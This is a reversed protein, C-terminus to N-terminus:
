SLLVGDNELFNQLEKTTKGRCVVMLIEKESSTNCTSSCKKLIALDSGSGSWSKQTASAEVGCVMKRFPAGQMFGDVASEEWKMVETSDFAPSVWALGKPKLTVRVLVLFRGPDFM